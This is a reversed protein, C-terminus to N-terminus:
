STIGAGAAMAGISVLRTHRRRQSQFGIFGCLCRVDTANLSFLCLIHGLTYGVTQPRHQHLIYVTVRVVLIFKVKYVNSKSNIRNM